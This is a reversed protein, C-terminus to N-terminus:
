KLAGGLFKQSELCYNSNINSPRQRDKVIFPKDKPLMAKDKIFEKRFNNESENFVDRHAMLIDRDIDQSYDAIMGYNSASSMKNTIKRINFKKMDGKIHSAYNGGINSYGLNAGHTQNKSNNRHSIYENNSNNKRPNGTTKEQTGNRSTGFNKDQKVRASQYFKNVTPM